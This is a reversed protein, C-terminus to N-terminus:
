HWDIQIQQPIFAYLMILLGIWLSYELHAGVITLLRAARLDKQSLLSIRLDRETGALHELQQVPLQLHSEPQTKAVVPKAVAPKEFHRAM